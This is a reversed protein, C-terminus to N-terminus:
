RALDCYCPCGAPDATVNDVIASNKFQEKFRAFAQAKSEYFVRQVQPLRELNARIVESELGRILGPM